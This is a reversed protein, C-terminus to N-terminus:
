TGRIIGLFHLRIVKRNILNPYNLLQSMVTLCGLGVLTPVPPIRKTNPELPLFSFRALTLRLKHSVRCEAAVIYENVEFRLSFTFFFCRSMVSM